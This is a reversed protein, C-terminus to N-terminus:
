EQSLARVGENVNSTSLPKTALEELGNAKLLARWIQGLRMMAAKGGNMIIGYEYPSINADKVERIFKNRRRGDEITKAVELFARRVGHKERTKLNGEELLFGMVRRCGTPNLQDPQQQTPTSQEQALECTAFWERLALTLKTTPIEAPTRMETTAKLVRYADASAIAWDSSLALSKDFKEAKKHLWPGWETPETRMYYIELNEKQVAESQLMPEVSKRPLFFFMRGANVNYISFPNGTKMQEMLQSEATSKDLYIVTIPFPIAQHNAPQRDIMEFSLEKIPLAKASANHMALLAERSGRVVAALSNGYLIQLATPILVDPRSELFSFFASSSSGPANLSVRMLVTASEALELEKPLQWWPRGNASAKVQRLLLESCDPPEPMAAASFGIMLGSFIQLARKM